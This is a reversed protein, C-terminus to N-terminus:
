RMRTFTRRRWSDIIVATTWVKTVSCCRFSSDVIRIVVPALMRLGVRGAISPARAFSFRMCGRGCQSAAFAQGRAPM